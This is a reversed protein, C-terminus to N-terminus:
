AARIRHAQVLSYQSRGLTADPLSSIARALPRAVFDLTLRIRTAARTRQLRLWCAQFIWVQMVTRGGCLQTPHLGATSVGFRLRVPDGCGCSSAIFAVLDLLLRERCRGGGYSDVMFRARKLPVTDQPPLDGISADHPRHRSRLLPYARSSVDRWDSSSSVACRGGDWHAPARPFCLSHFELGRRVSQTAEM